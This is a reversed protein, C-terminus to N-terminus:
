SSPTGLGDPDVSHDPPSFYCKISVVHRELYTKIPSQYHVRDNYGHLTNFSLRFIINELKRKVVNKQLLSFRVLSNM